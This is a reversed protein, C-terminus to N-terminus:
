AKGAPLTSNKEADLSSVPCKSDLTPSHRIPVPGCARPTNEVFTDAAQRTNFVGCIGADHDRAFDFVQLSFMRGCLAHRREASSCLSNLGSRRRWSLAFGRSKNRAIRIRDHRTDKAVAQERPLDGEDGASPLPIPWRMASRKASCPALTMSAPLCALSAPRPPPPSEDAWHFRPSPPAPHARSDRGPLRWRLVRSYNPSISM